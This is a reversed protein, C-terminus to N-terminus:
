LGKIKNIKGKIRNLKQFFALDFIYRDNVFLIGYRTTNYSRGVYEAIEGYPMYLYKHALYMIVQRADSVSQTRKRSFIDERSVFYEQAVIDAIIEITPKM